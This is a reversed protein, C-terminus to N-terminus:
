SLIVPQMYQKNNTRRYIVMYVDSTNVRQKYDVEGTHSTITDDNCQLWSCVNNGEDFVGDLPWYRENIFSIYHGNMTDGSPSTNHMVAIPVYDAVSTLEGDNTMVVEDVAFEDTTGKFKNFLRIQEPSSEGTNGTINADLVPQIIQQFIHIHITM